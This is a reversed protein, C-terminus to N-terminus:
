TSGSWKMASVPEPALGHELQTSNSPKPQPTNEPLMMLTPSAMAVASPGDSNHYRGLLGTVKDTDDLCVKVEKPWGSEGEASIQELTSLDELCPPTPVHSLLASPMSVMGTTLFTDSEHKGRSIGIIDDTDAVDVDDVRTADREEAASATEFVEDAGNACIESGGVVMTENIVSIRRSAVESQPLSSFCNKPGILAAEPVVFPDVPEEGEHA